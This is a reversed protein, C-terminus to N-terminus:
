DGGDSIHRQNHYLTFCLMERMTLDGLLPHPLTYRDLEAESWQVTNEELAQATQVWAAVQATQFEAPVNVAEVQDPIFSGSAQGGNALARQYIACIQDYSRSALTAKGFRAERKAPSLKMMLAIPKVSNILHDLNDAPSWSGDVLPRVFQEAPMSSYFRTVSERSDALAHLISERTTIERM